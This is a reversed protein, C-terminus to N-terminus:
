KILYTKFYFYVGYINYLAYTIVKRKHAGVFEDNSLNEFCTYRSECNFGLFIHSLIISFLFDFHYPSFGLLWHSKKNWQKHHVLFYFILLFSTYVRVGVNVVLLTWFLLLFFFCFPGKGNGDCSILKGHTHNSEM